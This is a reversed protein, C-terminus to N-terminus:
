LLEKVFTFIIYYTEYKYSYLCYRAIFQNRNTPNLM